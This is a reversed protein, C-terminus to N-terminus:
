SHLVWSKVIVDAFDLGTPSEVDVTYIRCKEEESGLVGVCRGQAQPETGFVRIGSWARKWTSGRLVYDAASEAVNGM